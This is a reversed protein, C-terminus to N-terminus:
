QEDGKIEWLKGCLAKFDCYRCGPRIDILLGQEKVAQERQKRKEKSFSGEAGIGIGKAVTGARLDALRKEYTKVVNGWVNRNNQTNAIFKEKPFLYYGSESGFGSLWDYAALQVSTGEKIKDAYDKRSSWKFDFIHCRKEKDRLILDAYGSFPVGCFDKDEFKYESEVPKLGKEAMLKWLTILSSLLKNRYNEREIKREPEAYEPIKENCYQEFLAAFKSKMDEVNGAKASVLKEVM